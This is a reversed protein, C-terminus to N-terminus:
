DRPTPDPSGPVEGRDGEISEEAEAERTIADADSSGADGEYAFSVLGCARCISAPLYSTRVLAVPILM